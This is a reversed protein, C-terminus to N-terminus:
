WDLDTDTCSRAFVKQADHNQVEPGAFSMCRADMGKIGDACVFGPDNEQGCFTGGM